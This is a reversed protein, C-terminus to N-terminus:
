LKSELATRLREGREAVESENPKESGSGSSGTYVIGIIGAEAEGRRNHEIVSLLNEIPGKRMRKREEDEIFFIVDAPTSALEERLPLIVDPDRADLVAITGRDRRHYERWHDKRHTSATNIVPNFEPFIATMLDHLPTNFSGTLVFRPPRQKLFLEKLPTLENLIPRQITAPLRGVLGELREIVHLFLSRNM